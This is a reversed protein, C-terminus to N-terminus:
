AILRFIVLTVIVFVIAELWEILTGGFLERITPARRQDRQPDTPTPTRTPTTAM